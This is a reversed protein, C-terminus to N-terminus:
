GFNSVSGSGLSRPSDMSFSKGTALQAGVALGRQFAQYVESAAAAKADARATSIELNKNSDAVNLATQLRAKEQKEAALEARLKSLVDADPKADPKPPKAEKSLLSAGTKKKSYPGRKWPLGSRPHVGEPM